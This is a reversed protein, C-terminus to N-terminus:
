NNSPKLLLRRIESQITNSEFRAFIGNFFCLGLAGLHAPKTVEDMINRHEKFFHELLIENPPVVEGEFMHILRYSDLLVDKFLRTM